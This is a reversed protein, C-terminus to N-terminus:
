QRVVRGALHLDVLVGLLPLQAENVDDNVIRRVVFRLSHDNVAERLSTIVVLDHVHDVWVKGNEDDSETQQEDVNQKDESFHVPNLLSRQQRHGPHNNDAEWQSGRNAESKVEVDGEIVHPLYCEHLM